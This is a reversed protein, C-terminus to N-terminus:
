FSHHQLLLEAIYLFGNHLDASLSQTLIYIEEGTPIQDQLTSRTINDIGSDLAHITQTATDQYQKMGPIDGGYKAQYHEATALDTFIKSKTSKNISKGLLGIATNAITEQLQKNEHQNHSIHTEYLEDVLEKISQFQGPLNRQM